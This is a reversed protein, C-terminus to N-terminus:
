DILDSFKTRPIKLFIHSKNFNSLNSNIRLIESYLRSNLLLLPTTILFFLKYNIIFIKTKIKKKKLLIRLLIEYKLIEDGGVNLISKKELSNSKVFDSINKDIIESLQSIHIPQREGSNTPLFIFPFKRCINILRNINKDKYIGSAGFIMSTRIISIDFNYDKSINLINNEAFNLNSILKKDYEHWSYKKTIISTSSCCIMGKIQYTELRNLNSLDQLFKSFIWIPCLSIWIEESNCTKNLNKYNSKSIDLNIYKKDERSYCFIKKYKRKLINNYLYDGTTTTIGFIRILM